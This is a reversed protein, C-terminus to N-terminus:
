ASGRGAGHHGPEYVRPHGIRPDGGGRASRRSWTWGATTTWTWSSSTAITRIRLWLDSMVDSASALERDPRSSATDNMLLFSPRKSPTSSHGSACPWSTPGATRTSTGLRLRGRRHPELHRAACRQVLRREELLDGVSQRLGAGHAARVGPRCLCRPPVNQDLCTAGEQLHSRDHPGPVWPRDLHRHSGRAERARALVARPLMVARARGSSRGASIAREERSPRKRPTGHRSCPGKRREGGASAHAVHVIQGHVASAASAPEASGSGPGRQGDQERTGAAVIARASGPRGGRRPLLEGQRTGAKL